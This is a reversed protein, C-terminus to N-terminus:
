RQFVLHTGCDVTGEPSFHSFSFDVRSVIDRDGIGRHSAKSIFLDYLACIVCCDLYSIHPAGVFDAVQRM